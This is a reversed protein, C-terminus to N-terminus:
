NNFMWNLEDHIMEGVIFIDVMGIYFTELLTTLERNAFETGNDTQLVRFRGHRSVIHSVFEAVRWAHKSQIPRTWLFKSFIDILCIVYTNGQETVELEILDMQLHFYVQDVFIPQLERRPRRGPKKM